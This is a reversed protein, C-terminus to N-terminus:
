SLIYLLIFSVVVPIRCCTPLLFLMLISMIYESGNEEVLERHTGAEQISGDAIVVIKDSNIITTLRHAVTITTLKRELRIKDLADQVM